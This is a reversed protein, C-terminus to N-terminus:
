NKRAVVVVCNPRFSLLSGRHDGSAVRGGGGRGFENRATVPKIRMPVRTEVFVSYSYDNWTATACCLLLTWSINRRKYFLLYDYFMQTWVSFNRTVDSFTLWIKPRWRQLHLKTVFCKGLFIARRLVLPLWQGVFGKSCRNHRSQHVFTVHYTGSVSLWTNQYRNSNETKDLKTWDNISYIEWNVNQVNDSSWTGPVLYASEFSPNRRWPLPVAPRGQFCLRNLPEIWTPTEIERTLGRFWQKVCQRALLKKM